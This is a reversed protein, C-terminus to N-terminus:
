ISLDGVSPLPQKETKYAILSSATGRKKGEKVLSLLEDAEKGGGCFDWAEKQREEGGSKIYDEWLEEPTMMNGKGSDIEEGTDGNYLM